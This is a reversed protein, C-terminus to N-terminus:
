VNPPRPVSRAATIDDPPYEKPHAGGKTWDVSVLGGFCDTEHGLQLYSLLSAM